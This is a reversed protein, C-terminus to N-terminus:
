RAEAEVLERATVILDTLTDVADGAEQYYIEGDEGRECDVKMRAVMAVFDVVDSTLNRASSPPPCTLHRATGDVERLYEQDEIPEDCRYCRAASAPAAKKGRTQNRAM